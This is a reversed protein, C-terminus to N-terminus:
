FKYILSAVGETSEGARDFAFDIQFNNGSVVGLGISWHNEDGRGPFTEDGLPADLPFDARLQNDKDQRFGARFILTATKNPRRHVYEAGFHINTQDDVTLRADAEEDFDVTLLNLRSNFGELIDSYSIRNADLAFTLEGIPRWSIGAGLVDPVHFENSFVFPEDSGTPLSGTENLFVRSVIMGPVTAPAIPFVALEEEFEFDGGQRYVGGVSFKERIKWLFGVTLTVDTDKTDVETRYM